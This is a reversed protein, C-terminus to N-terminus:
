GTEACRSRRRTIASAHHRWRQRSRREIRRRARRREGGSRRQDIRMTMEVHVIEVGVAIRHQRTRGRRTHPRHHRDSGAARDVGVATGNRERRRMRRDEGRDPDMGVFRREDGVRQDILQRRQRAGGLHDRDTLGAEVVV